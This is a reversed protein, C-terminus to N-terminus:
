HLFGSFALSLRPMKVDILEIHAARARACESSSSMMHAMGQNPRQHNASSQDVPFSDRVIAM